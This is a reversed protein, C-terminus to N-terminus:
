AAKDFYVLQHSNLNAMMPKSDKVLAQLILVLQDKRHLEENKSEEEKIPSQPNCYSGKFLICSEKKGEKKLSLIYRTIEALVCGYSWVDSRLDYNDAMLINEPARYYRTCFTPTLRRPRKHSHRSEKTYTRSWGFDCLQVQCHSNILINKPTLDRHM